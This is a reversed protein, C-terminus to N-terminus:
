LWYGWVQITVNTASANAVIVDIDGDSNCPVIVTMDQASTTHARITATAHSAAKPRVSLQSAAAAAAWTAVVRLLLARAGAPVGFVASTDISVTSASITDNGDYSGSTLPAALITFVPAQTLLKDVHGELSDIRDLAKTEFDSM